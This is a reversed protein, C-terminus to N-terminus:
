SPQDLNTPYADVFDIKSHTDPFLTNLTSASSKHKQIKLIVIVQNTPGKSTEGLYSNMFTNQPRKEKVFMTKIDRPFNFERYIKLIGTTTTENVVGDPRELVMSIIESIILRNNTYFYPQKPEHSNLLHKKMVVDDIMNTFSHNTGDKKIFEIIEKAERLSLHQNIMNGRAVHTNLFFSILFFVARECSFNLNFTM